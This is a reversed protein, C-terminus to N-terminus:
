NARLIVIFIDGTIALLLLLWLDLAMRIGKHANEVQVGSM